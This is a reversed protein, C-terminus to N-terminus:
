FVEWFWGVVEEVEQESEHCFVAVGGLFPASAGGSEDVFGVFYVM